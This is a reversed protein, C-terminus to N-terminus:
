KGKYIGSNYYNVINMGRIQSEPEKFKKNIMDLYELEDKPVFGYNTINDIIFCEHGLAELQQVVNHGIFGAGGTVIFKM